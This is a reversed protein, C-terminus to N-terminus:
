TSRLSDSMMSISFKRQSFVRTGRKARRAPLTPAPGGATGSGNNRYTCGGVDTGFYRNRFGGPVLQASISTPWFPPWGMVFLVLRLLLTPNLGQGQRLQM